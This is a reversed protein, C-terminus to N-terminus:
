GPRLVFLDVTGALQVLPPEHGLGPRHAARVEHQGDALPHAVVHDRAADLRLPDSEQGVPHVRDRKRRPGGVRRDPITVARAIGEQEAVHAVEVMSPLVLLQEDSGRRREEAAAAVDGAQEHAVPAATRLELPDRRFGAHPARHDEDAGNGVILQRAVAVVKSANTTGRRSSRALLRTVGNFGYSAIAIARGIPAHASRGASTSIADGSSRPSANARRRRGSPRGTSRSIPPRAAACRSPSPLGPAPERRFAAPGGIAGAEPLDVCLPRPWTPRRPRPAPPVTMLVSMRRANAPGPATVARAIAPRRDAGASPM